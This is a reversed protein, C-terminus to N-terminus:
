PCHCGSSGRHSRSRTPRFQGQVRRSPPRTSTQEPDAADARRAV